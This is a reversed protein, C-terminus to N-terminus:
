FIFKMSKNSKIHNMPKNNVAYAFQRNSLADIAMNPVSTHSTGLTISMSLLLLDSLCHPLYLSYWVLVGVYM